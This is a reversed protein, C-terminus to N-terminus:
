PTAPAPRRSPVEHHAGDIHVTRTPYAFDVDESRLTALLGMIIDQHIDMYVNYDSDLVYYVVEFDFSSTGFAKFHARDFRTQATQEIVERVWEPIQELTETATQYVVGFEFVVRREHMRKYNRVRSTLLDNNSFIIQEGGLSRVRTTKMGIKEVVGMHDGVVIFDGIVFPKDVIISLSAFLDGLINQVALAVAVGGIGLSAVLATIDFGLNDIVLLVIAVWVVLKGMFRLASLATSQAPDDNLKRRSREVSMEVADAAWLGIQFFVGLIVAIEILRELRAPLEAALVALHMGVVVYFVFSTRDLMSAVVDLASIEDEESRERLRRAILCRVAALAAIAVVVVVGALVWQTAVQGAPSAAYWQDLTEWM